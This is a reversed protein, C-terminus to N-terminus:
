IITEPLFIRLASVLTTMWTFFACLFITKTEDLSQINLNTGPTVIRIVERKVIGKATKPDEVQECIAAKYGKDILKNLYSDVAHYPIGCMPAKEAQGCDKGTLTIELM